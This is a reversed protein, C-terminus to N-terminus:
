IKIIQKNRLTTMHEPMNALIEIKLADIIKKKIYDRHTVISIERVPKSKIKKLMHMQKKGFDLTALEPIITIMNNHEAMKKLTEISGAEYEFNKSINTKRLECLQIIQSRFCHGEELLLLNDADIDEPVIYKKKYLKNQSSVYVFMEEYFLPQEKISDEELPTAMLGIDIKNSKLDAIIQETINERIILKVHPYRDIFKKVFLPLLYPALTPIVSIKLEGSLINKTENVINKIRGFEKVIVRAQSIIVEGTATPLVPHKTRDFIKIGLEDELKQIQMSLTPQTVFCHEAAHLFHRHDEVAIIYELQVITM